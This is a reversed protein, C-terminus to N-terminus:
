GTQGPWGGWRRPWSRCPRWRGALLEEAVAPVTRSSSRASLRFWEFVTAEDIDQRVMLAGKAQEVLVRTELAAKLQVALRGKVRAQGAAALLSAVM